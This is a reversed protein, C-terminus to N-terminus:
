TSDNLAAQIGENIIAIGPYSAGTENLILIRRIERPPEAGIPHSLFIAALAALAVWLHRTGELGQQGPGPRRDYRFLAM